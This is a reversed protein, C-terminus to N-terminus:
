SAGEGPYLAGHPEHVCIGCTRPMLREGTGAFLHPGVGRAGPRRRPQAHPRVRLLGVLRGLKYGALWGSLKALDLVQGQFEKESIQITSVKM